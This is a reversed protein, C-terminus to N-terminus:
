RRGADWARSAVKDVFPGHGAGCLALALGHNIMENQNESWTPGKTFELKPFNRKASGSTEQTDACVVIGDQCRFGAIMTMIRGSESQGNEMM